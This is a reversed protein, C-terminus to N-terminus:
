WGMLLKRLPLFKSVSLGKTFQDAIQHDTDVYELLIGKDAGIHQRFFHYRQNIHRTRSQMKPAKAISITSKNDEFVKSKIVATPNKRNLTSAIENVVGRLPLLVRMADSLAIYESETSSLTALTQLTSVWHVPCKGLFFVFGSRSRSSIPDLSDEVDFLGCFDADVYLDLQLDSTPATPTFELGQNKTDQLYACIKYVANAHSAKPNHVFRACQHVSFQIDPRTNCVYLLMGIVSRYNWSESIAKGKPDAGLAGEAAPTASSKYPSSDGITELIRTILKTQRLTIREATRIGNLDTHNVNVEIGLYQYVDLNHEKSVQEETLPFTKRLNNVFIDIQEDTSGFILLDDIYNLVIVGDKYFLCSDFPSRTFGLREVIDTRIKEYFLYAAQKLGYLSKNLKLVVDKGGSNFFHSPPEIFIHEGEPLSAQIFAQAFDVQRTKLGLQLSFALLVRVTSWKVTPSFTEFFDVDEIQLDGRACFRAKFKLISGDPLRKIKYTWTTKLVHTGRPLSSRLVGSWCKHKALNSLETKMAEKFDEWYGSRMAEKMKMTDPDGTATTANFAMNYSFCDIDDELEGTAPNHCLMAMYAAAQRTTTHKLKTGKPSHIINIITNMMSIYGAAGSEDYGFRTENFQGFNSRTSRRVPTGAAKRTPLATGTNSVSSQPDATTDETLDILNPDSELEVRSSHTLGHPPNNTRSEETTASSNTPNSTASEADREGTRELNIRNEHARRQKTIEARNHLIEEKDLWEDNLLTTDAGESDLIHRIRHHDFLIEWDQPPTTDDCHVTTFLVDFITHYQPSIYGTHLNRVLAVTSAHLKSQGMYQGRRSRPKWKPLKKGAQLTPDLVYTPCGWVPMSALVSHDFTTRTFLEQSCLGNSQSPVINHLLEAHSMAMPYLDPTTVESWRLMAHLLMSRSKAVTSGIAREAHGNQFQANVGSYTLKQEERELEAQFTRATFVGNDSHYSKIFNGVEKAEREYILKSRITEAASLTVQHFLRVYGTAMDIFLTGGRYKDRIPELGRTHFLRGRTVVEFQDMAVVDGPQLNGKSLNGAVSPRPVSQIAPNARRRQKAYQCTACLPIDTVGGLAKGSEGLVGHRGLWQVFPMAVHGLRFHM